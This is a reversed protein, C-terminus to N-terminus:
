STIEFIPSYSQRPIRTEHMGRKKVIGKVM